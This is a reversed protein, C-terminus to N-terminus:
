QREARNQRVVTRCSELYVHVLAHRPDAEEAHVVEANRRSSPIGLHHVVYTFLKRILRRADASHWVAALPSRTFPRALWLSTDQGPRKDHATGRGEVPM